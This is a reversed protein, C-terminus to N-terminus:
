QFAVYSDMIYFTSFTTRPDHNIVFADIDHPSLGRMALCARISRAPFAQARRDQLQKEEECVAVLEGNCVLSAAPDFQYAAIGLVFRMM